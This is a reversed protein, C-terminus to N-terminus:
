LIPAQSTFTFNAAPSHLHDATQLGASLLLLPDPEHLLYCCVVAALVTRIRWPRLRFSSFFFFGSGLPSM